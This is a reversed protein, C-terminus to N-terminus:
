EGHGRGEGAREGCEEGEDEEAREEEAREGGDAEGEEDVGHPRDPTSGERHQEVADNAEAEEHATEEHPREQRLCFAAVAFTELHTHALYVIKM